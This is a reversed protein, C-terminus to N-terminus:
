DYVRQLVDGDITSKASLFGQKKEELNGKFLRKSYCIMSKDGSINM